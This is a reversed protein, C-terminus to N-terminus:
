NEPASVDHREALWEQASMRGRPNEIAQPSDAPQTQVTDAAPQSQRMILEHVSPQRPQNAILDRLSSQPESTVILNILERRRREDEPTSMQRRAQPTCNPGHHYRVQPNHKRLFMSYQCM